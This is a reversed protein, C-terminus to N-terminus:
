YDFVLNVNKDIELVTEFKGHAVVNVTHALASAFHIEDRLKGRKVLHFCSGDCADPTLDFGFLTYGNGFDSHKLDNGKYSWVHRGQAFNPQLTEGPVQRGDVYVALFNIDNHKAYFPNKAYSGNFADNDICCWM